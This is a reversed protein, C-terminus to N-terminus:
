FAWFFLMDKKQKKWIQPHTPPESGFISIDMNKKTKKISGEGLIGLHIVFEIKIIFLRDWVNDNIM